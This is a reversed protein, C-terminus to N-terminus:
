VLRYKREKEKQDLICNKLNFRHIKGALSGQLTGQLCFLDNDPPFVQPFLDEPICWCNTLGRLSPLLFLSNSSKKIM